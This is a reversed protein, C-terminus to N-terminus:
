PVMDFARCPGGSQILIRFNTCPLALTTPVTFGRKGQSFAWPLGSWSGELAM